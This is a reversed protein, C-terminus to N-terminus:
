KEMNEATKIAMISGILADNDKLYIQIFKM